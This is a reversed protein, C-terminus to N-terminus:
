KIVTEWKELRTESQIKWPQKIHTALLNQIKLMSYM